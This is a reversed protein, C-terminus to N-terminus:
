TICSFGKWPKLYRWFCDPSLFKWNLNFDLEPLGVPLPTDTCYHGPWLFLILRNSNRSFFNLCGPIDNKYSAMDWRFCPQTERKYSIKSPSFPGFSTSSLYKALSIREAQPLSWDWLCSTAITQTHVLLCNQPTTDSCLLSPQKNHEKRFSWLLRLATGM